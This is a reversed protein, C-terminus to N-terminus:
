PTTNLRTLLHMVNRTTALYPVTGTFSLPAHSSVHQDHRSAVEGHAHTAARTYALFVSAGQRCQGVHGNGADPDATGARKYRGTCVATKRGFRDIRHANVPVHLCGTVIFRHALAMAIVMLGTAQYYVCGSEVM